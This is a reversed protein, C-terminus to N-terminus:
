KTLENLKNQWYSIRYKAYDIEYQKRLKAQEDEISELYERLREIDDLSRSYFYCKNYIYELKDLLELVTYLDPSFEGDYDINVTYGLKLGKEKVIDKDIGKIIYQASVEEPNLLNYRGVLRYFSIFNKTPEKM